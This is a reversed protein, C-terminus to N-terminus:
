FIERRNLFCGWREVLAFARASQYTTATAVRDIRAILSFGGTKPTIGRLCLFLGPDCSGYYWFKFDFRQAYAKEGFNVQDIERVQRRLEAVLQDTLKM